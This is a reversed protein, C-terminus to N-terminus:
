SNYVEIFFKDTDNIQAKWNVTKEFQNRGQVSRAMETLKAKNCTIKAVEKSGDPKHLVIVFEGGPIQNALVTSAGTTPNVVGFFEQKSQDLTNSGGTKAGTLMTRIRQWDGAGLTIQGGLDTLGNYYLGQLFESGIYFYDQDMTRALTMTFGKCKLTEYDTEGEGKWKLVANYFIAPEGNVTNNPSNYAVDYTESRRAIWQFTSRSYEKVNLNIEMNTIGVGRYVTTSGHVSNTGSTDTAQEDIIKLALPQATMELTYRLGAGHAQNAVVPLPTQAGLAGLLLGSTAFDWGRFAAEFQGNAGYTGGYISAAAVQDIAEEIIVDRNANDGFSNVRLSKFAPTHAAGSVYTIYDNTTDYGPTIVNENIEEEDYAYSDTTIALERLAMNKNEKYLNVRIQASENETLLFM